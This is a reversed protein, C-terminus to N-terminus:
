PGVFEVLWGVGEFEELPEHSLVSAADRSKSCPGPDPDVAPIKVSSNYDGITLWCCEGHATDQKSVYPENDSERMIQHRNFTGNPTCFESSGRPEVQPHYSADMISHSREMSGCYVDVGVLGNPAGFYEDQLGFKNHGIEHVVTNYAFGWLSGLGLNGANGGHGATVNMHIDPNVAPVAGNNCFYIKGLRFQGDTADMLFNSARRFQTKLEAWQKPTPVFGKELEGVFTWSELADSGVWFNIEFGNNDERSEPNSQLSDVRGVLSYFGKALGAPVEASFPLSEGSKLIGYDINKVVESNGGPYKKIELALRGGDTTAFSGANRITAQLTFPKKEAPFEPGVRLGAIVLDAPTLMFNALAVNNSEDSEETLELEDIDAWISSNQSILNPVTGYACYRTKVQGPSLYGFGSSPCEDLGGKGNHWSFLGEGLTGGVGSQNEVTIKMNFKGGAPIPNDLLQFESVVFDPLDSVVYDLYSFNNDEHLEALKGTPDVLVSLSNTGLKTPAVLKAFHLTARRDAPLGDPLYQAHVQAPMGHLNLHAKVAAGMPVDEPGANHVTVIADFCGGPAPKRPKLEISEVVLDPNDTDYELVMYNNTEDAEALTNQRDIMALMSFHGPKGPSMGKPMMVEVLEQPKIQGVNTVADPTQGNNPAGNTIWLALQGGPCASIGVNRVSVQVPDLPEGPVPRKEPLQVREIVLDPGVVQYRIEALNNAESGEKTVNDDDVGVTCVYRGPLAHSLNPFSFQIRGNDGVITGIQYSKIFQAKRDNDRPGIIRSFVARLLGANATTGANMVTGSVSFSQQPLLSNTSIKLPKMKFDPGYTTFIFSFVNNEENDEPVVDSNDATVVVKYDGNPLVTESPLAISVSGTQGGKLIGYPNNIGWVKKYVRVMHNTPYFDVQLNDLTATAGLNQVTFHLGRTTPNIPKSFVDEGIVFDPKSVLVQEIIFNNSENAEPTAELEDVWALISLSDAKQFDPALLGPFKVNVAEGKPLFGVSDMTEFLIEGGLIKGMVRLEGANGGVDGENVVRVTLNMPAGPMLIHEDTLIYAIRFDPAALAAQALALFSSVWVISWAKKALM